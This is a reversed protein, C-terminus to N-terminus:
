ITIITALDVTLSASALASADSPVTLQWITAFPVSIIAFHEIVVLAAYVTVRVQSHPSHGLQLVSDNSELSPLTAPYLSCYQANYAQSCALLTVGETFGAYAKGLATLLQYNDSGTLTIPPCVEVYLWIGLPYTAWKNRTYSLRCLLLFCQFYSYLM